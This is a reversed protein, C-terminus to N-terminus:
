RDGGEYFIWRTSTAFLVIAFIAAIIFFVFAMASGTALDRGKLGTAYINFTMFSSAKAPGGKTIALAPVVVQLNVVLSMLLNYFIIPTMCPITIHWFRRWAGAGDIEAAEQYVRPVNQLGALFIVILNGSGWVAILALVPVVLESKALFLSKELGLASLLANIPGDHMLLFYWTIMVATSPLIYPIYFVARFFGRAPVKRNLLLAVILSFVISGAVALLAYYVTVVISNLFEFRANTFIKIFNDLGVFKLTETNGYQLFHGTNLDTFSIAFSALVPLYTIISLGLFAPILFLYSARQERLANKSLRTKGPEKSLERM